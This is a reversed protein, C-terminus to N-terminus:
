GIFMKYFLIALLGYEKLNEKLHRRAKTIHDEVTKVSIQLEKAIAKNSYGKDKSLLYIRRRQEPLEGILKEMQESLLSYDVQLETDSNNKVVLSRLYEIYEKGTIKKRFESITVNKAVTFLFAEINTGKKLEERKNWLRIFVEQIIDRTDEESKLYRLVFHYLRPSYKEYLENIANKDGGKLLDLLNGGEM